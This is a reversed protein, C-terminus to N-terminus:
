VCIRLCCRKQETIMPANPLSSYLQLLCFLSRAIHLLAHAPDDPAQVLSSCCRAALCDRSYSLTNVVAVRSSAQATDATVVYPAIIFHLLQNISQNISQSVDPALVDLLHVNFDASSLQTGSLLQQSETTHCQRQIPAANWVALSSAASCIIDAHLGIYRISSSADIVKATTSAQQQICWEM